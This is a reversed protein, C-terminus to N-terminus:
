HLYADRVTFGTKTRRYRASDGEFSFNQSKKGKVTVISLVGHTRGKRTADLVDVVFKHKGLM